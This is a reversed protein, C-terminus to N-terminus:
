GRETRALFASGSGVGREPEATVGRRQQVGATRAITSCALYFIIWGFVAPVGTGVIVVVDM